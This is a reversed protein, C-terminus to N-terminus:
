PEEEDNCGESCTDDHGQRGGTVLDNTCGCHACCRFWGPRTEDTAQRGLEPM